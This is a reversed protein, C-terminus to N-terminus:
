DALTGTKPRFISIQSSSESTVLNRNWTSWRDELKMGAAAAMLDLESPWVYRYKAPFLRIGRCDITVLQTDLLQQLPEIRGLFSVVLDTNIQAVRHICGQALDQASQIFTEVVFTGNKTLKRSVNHFCKQQDAQSLLCNFTNYIIYILDFHGPVELDAFDGCMISLREAGPKVRLLELMQASSDIGSVLCGKSALPLAIRGTGVGLELVPNGVGALSALASVCSDEDRRRYCLQDYIEAFKNGYEDAGYEDM